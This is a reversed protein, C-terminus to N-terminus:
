KSVPLVATPATMTIREGISMGPIKNRTQQDRDRRYSKVLVEYVILIGPQCVRAHCIGYVFGRGM